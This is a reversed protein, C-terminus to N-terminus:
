YIASKSVDGRREHGRDVCINRILTQADEDDYIVFSPTFNINRIESRLFRVGFAHFTSLKTKTNNEDLVAKVRSFMEQAAKNTFTFAVIRNSPVGVEEVLYIIRETLVRTKGSGAGAIVRVFQKTTTVANIQAENLNELRSM